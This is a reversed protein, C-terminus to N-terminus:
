KTAKCSGKGVTVNLKPGGKDVLTGTAQPTPAGLYFAYWPYTLSESSVSKLVSGPALGFNQLPMTITVVANKGKTIKGTERQELVETGNPLYRGDAWAEYVVGPGTATDGSYSLAADAFRLSGDQIWKVRYVQYALNGKLKPLDIDAITMSFSINDRDCSVTGEVLDVAANSADGKADTWLVSVVPKAATAPLAQAVLGTGIALAIAIRWRVSALQLQM